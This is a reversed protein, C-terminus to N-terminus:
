VIINRRQYSISIIEFCRNVLRVPEFLEVSAVWAKSSINTRRLQIKQNHYWVGRFFIKLFIDLSRETKRIFFAIAIPETQTYSLHCGHTKSPPPFPYRGKNDFHM